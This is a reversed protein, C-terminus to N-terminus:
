RLERDLFDVNANSLTLFLMGYVIEPSINAVLFTEKFFKVQNSKNILSLAAVVMGYISLMTDDIKHAGVDILKMPLGLEKIFTLYITNVENGLDILIRVQTEYADKKFKVPYYICPVYKLILAEERVDTMTKATAM